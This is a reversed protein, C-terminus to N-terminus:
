NYVITIPHQHLTEDENNIEGCFLWSCIQTQVIIFLKDERFYNTYIHPDCLVSLINEDEVEDCCGSSM